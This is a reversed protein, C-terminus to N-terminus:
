QQHSCACGGMELEEHLAVTCCLGCRLLMNLMRRVQFHSRTSGGREHEEEQETGEQGQPGKNLLAPNTRKKLSSPKAWHQPPRCHVIAHSLRERHTNKM